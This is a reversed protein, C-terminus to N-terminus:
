ESPLVVLDDRHILEEDTDGEGKRYALRAADAASFRVLGRAIERGEPDFLSVSDGPHFAGRVGLVGVGLVSKHKEVVAACAGRDLLLAGRPRLTFGIWYKRASLKEPAAAFLTGIDEGALVRGLVEPAKASAIVVHAGALTARRAAEVKSAMGGTGVGSTSAGALHRAELAVSRVFPVRRKHEDLLGEVDSLLLLLDADCLPTVMAALQDNDGFKIEEVAVADNENIIPVAGAALLAALANRANNARARDALDAHTLLVQAVHLGVKGFAEEYRQMLVSQGAAAAAQLRAMDKPRSPFGLKHVGLAIAGSSVIVVSRGEKPANKRRGGARAPDVAGGARAARVEAALRDWADGALSKSGIKVVIRRCSALRARVQNGSEQPKLDAQREAAGFGVDAAM